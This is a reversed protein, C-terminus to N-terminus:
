KRRKKLCKTCTVKNWLRHFSASMSVLLLGCITVPVDFPPELHSIKHIKM